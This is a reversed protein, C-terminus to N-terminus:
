LKWAITGAEDYSFTGTPRSYNEEGLELVGMIPLSDTIRDDVLKIENGPYITAVKVKGGVMPDVKAVHKIIFEAFRAAKEPPYNTIWSLIGVEKQLALLFKVINDALEHKGNYVALADSHDYKAFKRSNLNPDIDPGIDEGFFCHYLARSGDARFGGVHFGLNGGVEAHVEEKLFKLIADALEDPGKLKDAISDLYLDIKLRSRTIDGWMTVCGVGSVDFLKKTEGSEFRPEGIPQFNDDVSIFEDVKRSDAAMIIANPHILSLVLTM